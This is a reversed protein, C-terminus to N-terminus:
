FLNVKKQKYEFQTDKLTAVLEIRNTLKNSIITHMIKDFLEDFTIFGTDYPPRTKYYEIQPLMIENIILNHLYRNNINNDCIYSNLENIKDNSISMLIINM